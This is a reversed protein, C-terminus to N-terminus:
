HARFARSRSRPLPKQLVGGLCNDEQIAMQANDKDIRGGLTQKARIAAIEQPQRAAASSGAGFGQRRHRLNQRSGGCKVMAFGAM